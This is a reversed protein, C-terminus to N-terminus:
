RHLVDDIGMRRRKRSSRLGSGGEEEDEESGDEVPQGSSSPAGAVRIPAGAALPPLQLAATGLPQAPGLLAPRPIFAATESPPLSPPLRPTTTTPAAPQYRPYGQQQFFGLPQAPPPYTYSPRYQAPMPPGPGQLAFPTMPPASHMTQERSPLLPEPSGLPPGLMLPPGYSFPPP